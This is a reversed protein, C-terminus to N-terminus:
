KKRDLFYSQNYQHNLMNRYYNSAASNNTRKNRISQKRQAIVKDMQVKNRKELAQINVGLETVQVILRQIKIIQSQYRERESELEAKVRNFVVEFGNDLEQMKDIYRQKENVLQLFKEEEFSETKLLEEQKKTIALIEKLVSQKKQLSDALVNVYVINSM